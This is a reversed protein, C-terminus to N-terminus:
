IEGAGSILFHHTREREREGYIIYAYSRSDTEPSKNEM